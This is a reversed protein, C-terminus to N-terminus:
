HKKNYDEPSTTKFSIGQEELDEFHVPIKGSYQNYDGDDYAAQGSGCDYYEGITRLSVMNKLIFLEIQM